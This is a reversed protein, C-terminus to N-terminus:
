IVEGIYKPNSVSTTMWCNKLEGELLVKEVQWIYYYKEKNKTLVIVKFVSIDEKEKLITIETNEHSILIKYNEGYIMEKFKDLPGTIKKNNPHAFEWTQEIGADKYPKNNDKLSNLQIMLVDFPKLNSNPKILDASSISTFLFFFVILKLLVRM